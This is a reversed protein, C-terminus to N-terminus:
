STTQLPHFVSVDNEAEELDLLDDPIPEGPLRLGRSMGPAVTRLGRTSADITATALLDVPVDDLGGPLFPVYGSKGRVFNKSPAPARDLATSTM